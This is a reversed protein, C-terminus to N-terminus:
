WRVPDHDCHSVNVLLVTAIRRSASNGGGDKVSGHILHHRLNVQMYRYGGVQQRLVYAGGFPGCAMFGALL